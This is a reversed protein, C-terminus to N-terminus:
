ISGDVVRRPRGQNAAGDRDPVKYQHDARLDDFGARALAYYLANEILDATVNRAAGQRRRHSREDASEQDALTAPSTRCASPLRRM